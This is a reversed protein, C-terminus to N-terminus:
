SEDNQDFYSNRFEVPLSISHILEGFLSTHSIYQFMVTIIVRKTSMPRLEVKKGAEGKTERKRGNRCVFCMVLMICGLLLPISVCPILIMLLDSTGGPSESPLSKMITITENHISSWQPFEESLKSCKSITCVEKEILERDTFCWPQDMTNGPNRCFSHGGALEPYQLLNYMNCQHYSEYSWHLLYIIILYLKSSELGVDEVGQLQRSLWETDWLNTVENLMKSPWPRCKAGTQSLNVVGQYRTGTDNYCNISRDVIQRLGLKTCQM